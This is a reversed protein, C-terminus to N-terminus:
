LGTDPSKKNHLFSLCYRATHYSVARPLRLSVGRRGTKLSGPHCAQSVMSLRRSTRSRSIHHPIMTVCHQGMGTPGLDGPVRREPHPTTAASILHNKKLRNQLETEPQLEAEIPQWIPQVHGKEAHKERQGTPLLKRQCGQTGM